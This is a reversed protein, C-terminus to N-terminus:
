NRIANRYFQAFKRDSRRYVRLAFRFIGDKGLFSSSSSSSSFKRIGRTTIAFCPFANATVFRTKSMRKAGSFPGGPFDKREEGDKESSEVLQSSILIPNFRLSFYRYGRREKTGNRSTDRECAGCRTWLDSTDILCVRFRPLIAVNYM